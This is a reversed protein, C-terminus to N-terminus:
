AFWDPMDNATGHLAPLKAEVRPNLAQTNDAGPEIQAEVPKLLEVNHGNPM